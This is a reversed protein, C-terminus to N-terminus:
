SAYKEWRLLCQHLGHMRRHTTLHYDRQADVIGFPAKQATTTDQKRRAVAAVGRPAGMTRRIVRAHWETWTGAAESREDGVDFGLPWTAHLARLREALRRADSWRYQT